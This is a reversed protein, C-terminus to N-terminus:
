GIHDRIGAMTLSSIGWVIFSGLTIIIIWHLREPYLADEPVSPSIFVALYRQQRDADVRAREMSALTSLYAKEAFGQETQLDEYTKLQKTLSEGSSTTKLAVKAKEVEIQQKVADIQTTIHVVRPSDKSMAGLAGLQAQLQTLQQELKNVIAQDASAMAQPDLIKTKERFTAVASRAMRLRNEAREMESRAEKVADDRARLSINNVLRESADIIHQAILQADEKTFARVELETIGAYSDFYVTVMQNWYTLFKEIPWDEHATAWFDVGDRSYLKRLNIAKDLKEVMERSQIYEVVMHSDATTSSTAGLGTMMGLLDGSAQTDAGRITFKAVAAYQDSAIFVYYLVSLVIPTVVMLLFSLSPTRKKKKARAPAMSLDQRDKRPTVVGETATRAAPVGQGSELALQRLKEATKPIELM